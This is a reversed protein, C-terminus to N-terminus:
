VCCNRKSTEVGPRMVVTNDTKSLVDLRKCISRTLTEFLRDVNYGTKASAEYFILDFKNALARGEMLTVAQKEMDVKNAVLAISTSKLGAKHLNELWHQVREFSIRNTVDYVLVAGHANRFYSATISRFREQGATDWIQLKIRKDDINIYKYKFDIGITTIFTSSFMDNVYKLMLCSKGVNSEGVMLIKLSLDFNKDTNM